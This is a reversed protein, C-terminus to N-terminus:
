LHTYLYFAFGKKIAELSAELINESVGATAWEDGNDKFEIFTRVSSSAGKEEAIMVKYNELSIGKAAPYKGQVITKIATYIADVPGGRVSSVVETPEGMIEGIIRCESHETGKNESSVHWEKILIPEPDNGFFSMALLFKEAEMIGIDYGKKTMIEVESLMKKVREDNKNCEIGLGRLVELINARGSLDSLIIERKNGVLEPPMCEYRAGKSIADVHIGGKHSFANKGVFPQSKNPKVNALLYVMDSVKKTNELKINTHFNMRGALNPIFQCLDLNGTREGFGNITGHVHTIGLEVAKLSNALALGRDNHCHIGLEVKMDADVLFQNTKIVASEIDSPLSDGNTDCLVLCVAGGTYAAQLTELAYSEDDRFGDFFHEADYIVELNSKRLFEVSSKILQLNEDPTSKLQLRVHDLWSKGFVAATKARSEVVARLTADNEAEIGVRRTSCFAVIKSTLKLNEATLFCETDKPNSGPWGLEIYDVGYEDLAKAIELKDHVSFNVNASQTGDRLTTDYIKIRIM